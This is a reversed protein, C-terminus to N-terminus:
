GTKCINYGSTFFPKAMLFLRREESKIAPLPSVDKSVHTSFLLSNESPLTTDPYAAILAFIFLSGM